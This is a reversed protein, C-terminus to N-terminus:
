SEQPIRVQFLDRRMSETLGRFELALIHVETIPEQFEYLPEYLASDVWIHKIDVPSKIWKEQLKRKNLNSFYNKLFESM